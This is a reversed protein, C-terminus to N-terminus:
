GRLLRQLRDTIVSKRHLKWDKIMTSKTTGVRLEFRNLAWFMPRTEGRLQKCTQTLGNDRRILGLDLPSEQELALRAIENRLEAPLKALPSNDMTATIRTPISNTVIYLCHHQQYGIYASTSTTTLITLVM